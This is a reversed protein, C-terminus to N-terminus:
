KLFDGWDAKRAQTYAEKDKKTVTRTLLGEDTCLTLLIHGPNKLPHRLIREGKELAIPGKSVAIYSFKEDEYGLSAEKVYRHKSSRELRASFHCWDSGEMPCKKGHPCPAVVHAGKSLLMERLRRIREFGLPTGPEIIVLFKGTKQWLKDLIVPWFSSPVEGIAYSMLVLDAEEIVFDKTLDVEKWFAPVPHEAKEILLKGLEILEKDKEYLTFKNVGGFICLSAWTATGPGAGVDAVSEIDVSPLTELAKYVAAFTAPFRSALYALKHGRQGMYDKKVGERYRFTLDKSFSSLEKLSIDETIEDIAIQLFEPIKM